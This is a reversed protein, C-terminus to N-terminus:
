AEGDEGGQMAEVVELAEREEQTLSYSRAM